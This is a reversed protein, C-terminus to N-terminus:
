LGLAGMQKKKNINNQQEKFEHRQITIKEDTKDSFTHNYTALIYFGKCREPDEIFDGQEESKTLPNWWWKSPCWYWAHANKVYMEKGFTEKIKDRILEAKVSKDYQVTVKILGGQYFYFERKVMGGSNVKQSFKRMGFLSDEDSTNVLGTYHKKVEDVGAGWSVKDYGYKPYMLGKAIWSAKEAEEEPTLTFSIEQGPLATALMFVVIMTFLLKKM